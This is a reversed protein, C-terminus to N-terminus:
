KISAPIKSEETSKSGVSSNSASSALSSNSGNSPIRNTNPLSPMVDKEEEEAASTGDVSDGGLKFEVKKEESSAM